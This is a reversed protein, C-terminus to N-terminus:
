AHFQINLRIQYKFVYCYGVGTGLDLYCLYTLRIQTSTDSKSLYKGLHKTKNQSVKRHNHDLDSHQPTMGIHITLAETGIDFHRPGLMLVEHTLVGLYCNVHMYLNSLSSM